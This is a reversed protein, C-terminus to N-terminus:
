TAGFPRSGSEDLGARGQECVLQHGQLPALLVPALVAEERHRATYQLRKPRALSKPSCYTRPM